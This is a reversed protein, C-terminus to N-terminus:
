GALHACRRLRSIPPVKPLQKRQPRDRQAKALGGTRAWSFSTWRGAGPPRASASRPSRSPQSSKPPQPERAEASGPSAYMTPLWGTVYRAQRLGGLSEGGAADAPLRIPLSPTGVGCRLVPAAV